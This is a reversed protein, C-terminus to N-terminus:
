SVMKLGRPAPAMGYAHARYLFEELGALERDGLVFHLDDRCYDTVSDAALGLEAAAEKAVTDLSSLGYRLSSKMYFALEPLTVGERVAWVGFVFPLGTLQQWGQTLDFVQLQDTGVRLAADSTVLAADCGAMPGEVRRGQGILKADLCYFERLLVVLLGLASRSARDFAIRKVEAIPCRTVLLASRSKSALCLHPVVRLRPIRSLEISPILGVELEGEALLASVRGLSFSRVDFFDAYQGKLFGWTLPRCDLLDPVGLRAKPM